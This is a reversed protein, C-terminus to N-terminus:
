TAPLASQPEAPRWSSPESPLRVRTEAWRRRSTGVQPSASRSCATRSRTPSHFVQRTTSEFRTSRPRRPWEASRRTSSTEASSAILSPGLVILGLALSSGTSSRIRASLSVLRGTVVESPRSSPSRVRASASAWAARQGGSCSGQRRCVVAWRGAQTDRHADDGAVILRWAVDAELAPERVLASDFVPCVPVEAEGGAWCIAELAGQQM